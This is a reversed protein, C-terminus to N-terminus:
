AVDSRTDPRHHGVGLRDAPLAGARRRLDDHRLRVGEEAEVVRPGCALLQRRVHRGLPRTLSEPLRAASRHVEELHRVPRVFLPPVSGETGEPHLEALLRATVARAAPRRPAAAVVPVLRARPLGADTLRHGLRVMDHLGKVGPRGVLVILDARRVLDRALAHREEIDLSGTEHEGDVDPDHDVVVTDYCRRLSEIAARLSGARMAAADRRHRQGLLLRYGREDIDFLLERVQDPEPQDVRHAEVLEPLGPLVDGVDHYMALDADRAGDVLAVARDTALDQALAMAVTSSGVGGAGTVGILPGESPRDGGLRAASSTRRSGRDVPRAHRTLHEVLEEPGFESRLVASCGLADWDRQVDRDNVVFTAAGASTALAILDRDLRPLGADVVVASLRRGSGIVARAEDATLCKVYEIPAVASTSWRALESFWRQRSRALGLVVYQENM